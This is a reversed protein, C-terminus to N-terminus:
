QSLHKNREDSSPDSEVYTNVCRQVCAPLVRWAPLWLLSHGATAAAAGAGEAGGAVWVWRTCWSAQAPPSAQERSAQRADGARLVLARQRLTRPRKTLQCTRASAHDREAEALGLWAVGEGRGGGEVRATAGTITCVSSVGLWLRYSGM